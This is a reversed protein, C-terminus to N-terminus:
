FIIHVSPDQSLMLFERNDVRKSVVAVAGDSQINIYQLYRPNARFSSLYESQLMDSRLMQCLLSDESRFAIPVPVRESFTKKLHETAERIFEFSDADSTHITIGELDPYYWALIEALITISIEGANKKTVRGSSSRKGKLPWNNYLDNIWERYSKMDLPDETQVNRRLYNRIDNICRVSELVIQFLSLEEQHVFDSYDQESVCFVPFGGDILNQVYASRFQSDSLEELVWGPILILDYKKLFMETQFGSKALKELFALLSNDMVAINKEGNYKRYTNIRLM